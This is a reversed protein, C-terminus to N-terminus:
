KWMDQMCENAREIVRIVNNDVVPLYKIADIHKNLFLRDGCQKMQTLTDMKHLLHAELYTMEGQTKCECLTHFSINAGKKIRENVHESSSTYNRWDMETVKKRRRKYGKLPPLMRTSHYKKKGIYASRTDNDLILYIFGVHYDSKMEKGGFEWHGNNYKCITKITSNM